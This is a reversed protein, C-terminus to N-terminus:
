ENNAFGEKKEILYLPRKRTEDFIRGIYEGHIGLILFQLGGLLLIVALLSTWGLVLHPDKLIFKQILIWTLYILSFFSLVFGLYSSLRLPLNSFSFLGDLAFRVMKLFPYKTKGAIREGRAFSIATQKYGIWFCLGRLYRNRERLQSLAQVAKRSMLRFDGTDQPTKYSAILNFFRYFLHATIRKFWTDKRQQRSAYVVDYGEEWRALMEPILSPPDQLDADMIVIADGSSADIAATISLQHGFNRSLKIARVRKDQHCFGEIISYSNDSSGDDVFIIEFKYPSDKTAEKLQQYLENLTQEENYVPLLISVLSM